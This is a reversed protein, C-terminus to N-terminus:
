LGACKGISNFLNIYDLLTEGPLMYEIFGICYFRCMNSDDDQTRFINHTITKDKVKGLLEPLIYEILFYDFYVATNKDIFLSVLHTGKRQKNDLNRM